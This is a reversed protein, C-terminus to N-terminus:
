YTAAVHDANCVYIHFHTTGRPPRYTRLDVLNVHRMEKRRQVRNHVRDTNVEPACAWACRSIGGSAQGWGSMFKDKAVIALVHTKKQEETRDDKIECPM